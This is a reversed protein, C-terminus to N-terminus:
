AVRLCVLTKGQEGEVPICQDGSVYKETVFTWKENTTSDWKFCKLAIRKLVHGWWLPIKKLSTPVIM